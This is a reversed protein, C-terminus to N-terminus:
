EWPNVLRVGTPEFDRVNRTMVALGHRLATAAILGDAAAVQFGSKRARATIEGWIQAVERDIPLIRDGHFAELKSLSDILARSFEPNPALEAGNRLEGITIVSLHIQSPHLSVFADRVMQSGRPKRVESIVCTDVLLGVM